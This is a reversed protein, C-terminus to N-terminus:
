LLKSADLRFQEWNKKPKQAESGEKCLPCIDPNWVNFDIALSEVMKFDVHDCTMKFNISDKGTRNIVTCMHPIIKRKLGHACLVNVSKQTTSGTTIVDEVLLVKEMRELESEFRKFTMKGDETKETYAANCGLKEAVQLAVPVGGMASGIVWLGETDDIFTKIKEVLLDTFIRLENPFASLISLNLFGDSHKGSALTAHAAEKEGNHKWLAGIKLLITELNKAM